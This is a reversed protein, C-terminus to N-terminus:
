GEFEDPVGNIVEKDALEIMAKKYPSGQTTVHYGQAYLRGRKDVKNTLWFCNGQKLLMIYVEQSQKVFSKWLHLKEATDLAQKPEESVTTLFYMDLSLAVKNQTNIVDLCIDGSHSNGKGLIQCENFTLYPSEFNNTVDAPECVMPPVYGARAVSDVLEASLPLRSQIFYSSHAGEQVIDYADTACLIAVVEAVTKISDQKDDFGLRGALQSTVSVFLEPTQCYAIGVFIDVVLAEFDLNKLQALRRQKSAYFEQSVWHALLTVGQCIKEQISPNSTIENRIYRDIHQKAYRYENSTQLDKPLMLGYQQLHQAANPDCGEIVSSNM